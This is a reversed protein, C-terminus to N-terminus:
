VKSIKFELKSLIEINNEFVRLLYKQWKKAYKEESQNMKNSERLLFNDLCTDVKIYM